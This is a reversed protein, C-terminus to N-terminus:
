ASEAQAAPRSLRPAETVSAAALEDAVPVSLGEPSIMLSVRESRVPCAWAVADELVGQLIGTCMAAVMVREANLSSTVQRWGEGVEGLVDAGPVFVDDFVV